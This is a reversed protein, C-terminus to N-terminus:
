IFRSITQEVRGSFGVILVMCVGRPEKAIVVRSTIRCTPRLFPFELACLQRQPKTSIRYRLPAVISYEPETM